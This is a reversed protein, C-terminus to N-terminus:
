KQSSSTLPSVLTHIINIERKLGIVLDQIESNDRRQVVEEMKVLFFSLREAGISIAGGKLGNVICHIKNYDGCKLFGNIEDIVSNGRQILVSLMDDYEDPGIRIRSMVKHKDLLPLKESRLINSVKEILIDGNIPKVLFDKAGMQISLLVSGQFREGSCIIVPINNLGARNNKYEMFMMGDMDPMIMDLIILFVPEGSELLKIAMEGSSAATTKYGNKQLIRGVLTSSVLDDDVILIKM